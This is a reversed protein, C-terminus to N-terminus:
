VHRASSSFVQGYGRGLTEDLLAVVACSLRLVDFVKFDACLFGLLLVDKKAFFDLGELGCKSRLQHTEQNKHVVPESVYRVLIM